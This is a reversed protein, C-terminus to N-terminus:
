LSRGATLRGHKAGPLLPSIFCLATMM